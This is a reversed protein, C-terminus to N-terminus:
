AAPCLRQATAGHWRPKGSGSPIGALNMATAVQDWTLGQTRLELLRARVEGPVKSPQGLKAGQAKKVQLAATTRESIMEAELEAFAGLLSAMLRGSPSTMDFTGSCTVISWGARTAAETLVLLHALKRSVRDIKAVMLIDAEGADLATIAQSLGPRLDPPVSGSVGEDRFVGVLALGRRDCELRIAAEQASLGLGCAAQEETSVRLSAVVRNGPRVVKRRRRTTGRSARLAALTPSLELHEPTQGM